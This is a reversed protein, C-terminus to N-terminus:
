PKECPANHAEAEEMTPYYKLQKGCKACTRWCTGRARDAPSSSYYLIGCLAFMDPRKERHQIFRSVRKAQREALSGSRTRKPQKEAKRFRRKHPSSM